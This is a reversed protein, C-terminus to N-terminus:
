WARRCYPCTTENECNQEWKEMCTEHFTQGCTKQCYVTEKGTMNDLCIACIDEPSVTRQAVFVCAATEELMAFFPQHHAVLAHYLDYTTGPMAAHCGCLANTALAGLIDHLSSADSIGELLQNLSNRVLRMREYSLRNRCPQGRSTKGVCFARHPKSQLIARISSGALSAPQVRVLTAM